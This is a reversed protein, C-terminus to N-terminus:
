KKEIKLKGDIWGKLFREFAEKLTIGELAAKAKAKKWLDAEIRLPYQKVAM